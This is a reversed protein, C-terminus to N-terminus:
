RGSNYVPLECGLPSRLMALAEVANVYLISLGVWVEYTEQSLSTNRQFYEVMACNSLKVKTELEREIKINM